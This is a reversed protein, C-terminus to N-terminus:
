HATISRLEFTKVNCPIQFGETISLLTPRVVLNYFGPCCDINVTEDNILDRETNTFIKQVQREKNLSQKFQLSLPENLDIENAEAM